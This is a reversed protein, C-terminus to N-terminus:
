GVDEEPEIPALLKHAGDLWSNPVLDGNEMQVMVGGHQPKFRGEWKALRAELEAIHENLMMVYSLHRENNGASEANLKMWLRIAALDGKLAKNRLTLLVGYHAIIEESGGEPLQRSVVSGAVAKFQDDHHHPLTMRQKAKKPRGNLNGSVGQEFQGNTKREVM